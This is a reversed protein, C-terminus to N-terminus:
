VQALELAGYACDNVCLGCGNCLRSDIVATEQLTIAGRPCTEVCTGCAICSEPKAVIAVTRSPRAIAPPPERKAPSAAAAPAAAAPTQAGQAGVRRGTGDRRRQRVGLGLGQGRHTSAGRSSSCRGTGGHLGGAMM